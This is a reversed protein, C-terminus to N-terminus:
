ASHLTVAKTLEDDDEEVPEILLNMRGLPSLGLSDLMRGLEAAAYILTGDVAGVGPPGDPVDFLQTTVGAARHAKELVVRDVERAAILVDEVKPRDTVQIWTAAAVAEITLRELEGVEDVIRVAHTARAISGGATRCPDQGRAGCKECPIM